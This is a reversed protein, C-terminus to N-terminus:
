GAVAAAAAARRRVEKQCFESLNRVDDAAAAAM